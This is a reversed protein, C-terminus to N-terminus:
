QHQSADSHIHDSMYMVALGCYLPKLMCSKQPDHKTRVACTSGGKTRHPRRRPEWSVRISGGATCLATPARTGSRPCCFSGNSARRSTLTQTRTGRGSCRAARCSRRRGQKSKADTLGDAVRVVRGSCWIYHPTQTEKEHYKWLVELRKGVLEQNFKPADQPQMMEVTDSIGLEIRQQMRAAAKQRLESSSFRTRSRVELADADLTGLQMSDRWEGQPPAAETPLGKETGATHRAASIEASIIEELLEMLHAVSGINADKSSSWRTAYQTWGLGLVRMEIQDRLYELQQAEPKPRGKDDQLAKRVAAKTRARRGGPKAWAAFLEQAHAYKDIHNNLLTVVREERRALKEADQATHAEREEKRAPDAERRAYEVLSEQLKESLGTYFFGGSHASREHKRKGRDSVITPPTDFDHQRMQQAMASIGTISSYRFIRMLYDICGFNSEVRDNTQHAGATASRTADVGVAFKGDTSLLLQSIARRPDRMAALAANAMEQALTITRATAQKNGASSPDRAEALILKHIPHSQGDPSRIERALFESRWAAFSPHKDALSAFPDFQPDLLKRGDAAIEEMMKETLDMLASSDELSWGLEAGAKGVLWRAPQSYIYAWLTNVRLAATMENCSYIRLLFKELKNDAGPVMLGQIFKLACVRNWFIAVSGDLALDQRGAEGREYPLHPRAKDEAKRWAEKERGKGLAYTQGAHLEKSTGRIVDNVDTSMRDFSSFEGLSDALEDKLSNTQAIQMANIITNRGHQQCHGHHAKCKLDRQEQSM